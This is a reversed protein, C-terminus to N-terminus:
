AIPARSRALPAPRTVLFAVVGGVLPLGVALVALQQWPPTLAFSAIGLATASLPVLSAATGLLGGAGLIVVAQVFAIRRRMGRGAGIASLTADDARGEIRALGLAALAAALTIAGAGGLLAWVVFPDVRSPGREVFINASSTGMALPVARYAEFLHASTPPETLRVHVTTPRHEIGLEAAAAPSLFLGYFSPANSRPPVLHARPTEFRVAAQPVGSSDPAGYWAIRIRGDLGLYHPMLAIPIDNALASRTDADLPAGLLMELDAASGVHMKPDAIGGVNLHGTDRCRPDADALDEESSPEYYPSRVDGLVIMPCMSDRPAELRPLGEGDAGVEGVGTGDYNFWEIAGAIVRAEDVPLSAELAAAARRTEAPTAWTIHGRDWDVEALSLRAHEPPLTWRYTSAQNADITHMVSVIIAFVFTASLSAAIAPVARGRNRELDRTAIRGSPGGRRLVRAALRLVAGCCLVAGLIVGAGGLVILATGGTNMLVGALPDYPVDITDPADISIQTSARVLLGGGLTVAGALATL